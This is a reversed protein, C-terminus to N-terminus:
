NTFRGTGGSVIHTMEATSTGDQNPTSTGKFTTYFVDGNAAYFTAPGSFAFPPPTTLNVTSVATFKSEGLFTAHGTGSIKIQLNPPNSLNETITAYSGTFPLQKTEKKCASIICVSALVCLLVRAFKQKM